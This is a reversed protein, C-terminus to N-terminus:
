AVTLTEKVETKTGDDDTWVFTLTGGEAARFRFELYPNASVGTELAWAIVPKGNLACEFARVIKRPVTKGDETKRFGTEMPHTVLARAVVVEGRKPTKTSLWIRPNTAM